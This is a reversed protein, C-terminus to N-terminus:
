RGLRDYAAVRSWADDSTIVTFDSVALKELEARVDAPILSTSGPPLGLLDIISIGRTAM